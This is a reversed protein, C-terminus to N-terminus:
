HCGNVSEAVCVRFASLGIPVRMCKSAWKTVCVGPCLSVYLSGCGQCLYVLEDCVSVGGSLFIRLAPACMATLKFCVHEDLCGM